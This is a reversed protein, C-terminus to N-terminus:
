GARAGALLARSHRVILHPRLTGFLYTGAALGLTVNFGTLVLQMGISFSIAAGASATGHLAVVVALQQAGVGGPGSPVSSAIGMVVVVLLADALSAPIGFAQLFLFVVGVRTVWAALQLAAVGRVYCAPRRLVATARVIAERLCAALRRARSRALWAAAVGAVAVAAVPALVWAPIASPVPLSSVAGLQWAALLVGAGFVADFAAVVGLTAAVATLTSGQIRSKMVAAKIASGAQGLTVASIGAAASNAAAVDLLRVPREPYAAGLVNRWAAARLVSYALQGCIALALLRVDVGALRDGASALTAAVFAFPETV